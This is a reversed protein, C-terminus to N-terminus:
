QVKMVPQLWNMLSPGAQSLQKLVYQVSGAQGQLFPGSPIPLHGGGFVGSPPAHQWPLTVHSTCFQDGSVHVGAYPVHHETLPVM